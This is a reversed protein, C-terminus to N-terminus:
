YSSLEFKQFLQALQVGFINTCESSLRVPSVADFNLPLSTPQLAHSVDLTPYIFMPIFCVIIIGTHM